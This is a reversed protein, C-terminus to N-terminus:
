LGVYAPVMQKLVGSNMNRIEGAPIPFMGWSDAKFTRPAFDSANPTGAPINFSANIKEGAFDLGRRLLDWKRLGEGGFEM